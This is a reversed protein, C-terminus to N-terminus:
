QERNRWADLDVVEGGVSELYPQVVRPQFAEPLAKAGARARERMSDFGENWCVVIRNARHNSPYMEVYVYGALRLSELARQATRRGLGTYFQMSSYDDRAMLVQGVRADEPNDEKYFANLCLYWLLLTQTPTLFRAQDQAWQLVDWQRVDGDDPVSM